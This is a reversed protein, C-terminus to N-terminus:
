GFDPDFLTKQVVGLPVTGLPVGLSVQAQMKLHVGVVVVEGVVEELGYITPHPLQWFM